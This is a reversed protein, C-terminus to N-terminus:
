LITDASVKATVIKKRKEIRRRQIGVMVVVAPLPLPPSSSGGGMDAAEKFAKL